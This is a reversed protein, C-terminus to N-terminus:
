KQSLDSTATAYCISNYTVISRLTNARFQKTSCLASKVSKIDTEALPLVTSTHTSKSINVPAFDINSQNVNSNTHTAILLVTINILPFLM